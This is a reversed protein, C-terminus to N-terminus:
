PVATGSVRQVDCVAEDSDQGEPVQDQSGSPSDEPQGESSIEDGIDTAQGEGHDGGFEEADEAEPGPASPTEQKPPLPLASLDGGMMWTRMHDRFDPRARFDAWDMFMRNVQDYTILESLEGHVQLILENLSSISLRTLTCFQEDLREESLALDKQNKFIINQDSMMKTLLDGLGKFKQNQSALQNELLGYKEELQLLRKDLNKKKEHKMGPLMKKKLSQSM